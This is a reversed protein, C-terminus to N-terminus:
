GISFVFADLLLLARKELMGHIPCKCNEPCCTASRGKVDRHSDRCGGAGETSCPDLLVHDKKERKKRRVKRSLKRKYRGQDTTESAGSAGTEGTVLGEMARQFRAINHQKKEKGKGKMMAKRDM